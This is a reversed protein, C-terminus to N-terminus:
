RRTEEDRGADLLQKNELEIQHQANAQMAKDNVTALENLVYYSFKRFVDGTQIQDVISSCAYQPLYFNLGVRALSVGYLSVDGNLASHQRYKKLEDGKERTFEGTPKGKKDLIPTQKIIYAHAIAV